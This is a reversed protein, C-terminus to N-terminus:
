TSVSEILCLAVALFRGCKGVCGLQLLNDGRHRRSTVVAYFTLFYLDRMAIKGLLAKNTATFTVSKDDDFFNSFMRRYLLAKEGVPMEPMRIEAFLNDMQADFLRSVYTRIVPAMKISLQPSLELVFALSKKLLTERKEDATLLPPLQSQIYAVVRAVLEESVIEKQNLLQARFDSLAEKESAWEATEGLPVSLSGARGPNSGGGEGVLDLTTLQKQSKAAFANLLELSSKNFHRTTMTKKENMLRNHRGVLEAWPLASLDEKLPPAKKKSRSQTGKASPTSCMWGPSAAASAPRSMEEAEKGWALSSVDSFFFGQGAPFAEEEEEEEEEDENDAAAVAEAAGAEKKDKKVPQAPTEQVFLDLSDELRPQKAPPPSVAKKSAPHDGETQMYSLEDLDAARSM